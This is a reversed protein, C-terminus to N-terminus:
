LAEAESLQFIEGWQVLYYASMPMEKLGQVLETTDGSFVPQFLASLPIRPDPEAMVM